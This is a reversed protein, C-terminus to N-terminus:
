CCVDALPVGDYYAEVMPRLGMADGLHVLSRLNEEKKATNWEFRASPMDLGVRWIAVVGNVRETYKKCREVHEVLLKEEEADLKRPKKKKENYKLLVSTLRTPDDFTGPCEKDCGFSLAAMVDALHHECWMRPAYHPVDSFMEEIADTIGRYGDDLREDVSRSPKNEKREKYRARASSLAYQWCGGIGVAVGAVVLVAGVFVSWAQGALKVLPNEAGLMNTAFQIDSLLGFFLFTFGAFLLLVVLIYGPIRLKYDQYYPESRWGMRNDGRKYLLEGLPTLAMKEFRRNKVLSSGKGHYNKGGKFHTHFYQMTRDFDRERKKKEIWGALSM